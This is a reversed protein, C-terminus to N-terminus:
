GKGYYVSREGRTAKRCSIIRVNDGRETYAVILLRGKVSHGISIYRDEELSHDPDGMTALDLDHFVTAAENFSVKHRKLNKLAKDEDWEFTLNM